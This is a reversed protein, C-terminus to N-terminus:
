LAHQERSKLWRDVSQASFRLAARRGAGLKIHPLGHHRMLSHLTTRSVGLTVMVQQDTLLRTLAPVQLAATERKSTNPM